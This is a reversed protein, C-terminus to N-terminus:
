NLCYSSKFSQSDHYSLLLIQTPHYHDVVESSEWELTLKILLAWELPRISLFPKFEVPKNMKNIFINKFIVFDEVRVL